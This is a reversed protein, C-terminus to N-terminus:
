RITKWHRRTRDKSSPHHMCSSSIFGKVQNKSGKRRYPCDQYVPHSFIWSRNLRPQTNHTTIEEIMERHHLGFTQLDRKTKSVSNHQLSQETRCTKKKLTLNQFSKKRKETARKTWKGPLYIASGIFSEGYRSINWSSWIATPVPNPWTKRPIPISKGKYLVWAELVWNIKDPWTPPTAIEDAM